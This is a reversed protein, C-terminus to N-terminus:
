IHILSLVEIDELTGETDFEVSYRLKDKKFKAEYSIKASDIEKYFRVRKAGVLKDTILGLAKEPFQSKLIRHEREYKNQAMANFPLMWVLIFCVSIKKLTGMANSNYKKIAFVISKMTM